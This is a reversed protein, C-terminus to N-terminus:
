RDIERYTTCIEFIDMQNRRDSYVLRVPFEGSTEKTFCRRLFQNKYESSITIGSPITIPCALECQLSKMVETTCVLITTKATRNQMDTVNLKSCSVCVAARGQPINVAEAILENRNGKITQPITSSRGVEGNEAPSSMMAATGEVNADAATQVRFAPPLSAIEKIVVRMVFPKQKMTVGKQNHTVNPLDAGSSELARAM